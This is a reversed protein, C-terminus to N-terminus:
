LDILNQIVRPVDLAAGISWQPSTMVPIPADPAPLAIEVGGPMADIAGFVRLAQNWTTLFLSAGLGLNGDESFNFNASFPLGTNVSDADIGTYSARGQLGFGFLRHPNISGEVFAGLSISRFSSRNASSAPTWHFQHGYHFGVRLDASGSLLSIGPQLFFSAGQHNPAVREYAPASAAITSDLVLSGGVVLHLRRWLSSSDEHTAPARTDTSDESENDDDDSTPNPRTGHTTLARQTEANATNTIRPPSM